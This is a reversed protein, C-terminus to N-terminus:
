NYSMDEFHPLMIAKPHRRIIVHPQMSVRPTRLTPLLTVSSHFRLSVATCLELSALMLFTGCSIAGFVFEALKLKELREVYAVAIADATPETAVQGLYEFEEDRWKVFDADALEKRQKFEELEVTYQEIIQLAQVYNNYLFRGLFTLCFTVFCVSEYKARPVQGHGM